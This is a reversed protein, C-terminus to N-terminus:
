QLGDERSLLPCMVSRIRAIRRGDTDKNVIRLGSEQPMSWYQPREHV